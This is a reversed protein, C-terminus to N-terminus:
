PPLPPDMLVNLFALFLGSPVVALVIGGIWAAKMASIDSAELLMVNHARKGLGLVDSNCYCRDYFNGFQLLFATIIWAANCTALFKALRRFFVAVHAAVRHALSPSAAAPYSMAYHSLFSSFVLIVWILTAVGGYLLYAGSRCGLGIPLVTLKPRFFFQLCEGVTPTFYVIMISAGTSSWQLALAALSAIAFRSFVDPGWHSRRAYPPAACYAEVQATTGRRNAPHVMKGDGREWQADPDVPIRKKANDSAYRFASYFAEVAQVFPLFRAYNYIPATADQDRYLSGRFLHSSLARKDNVADANVAGNASAVHSINNARNLANTVRDADCRPSM